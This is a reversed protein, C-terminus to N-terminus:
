QDLVNALYRETIKWKNYKSFMGTETPRNSLVSKGMNKIQGIMWEKFKKQKFISSSYSTPEGEFKYFADNFKELEQEGIILSGLPNEYEEDWVYYHLEVLREWADSVNFGSVFANVLFESTVPLYFQVESPPDGFIATNFKNGNTQILQNLFNRDSENQEFDSFCLLQDFDQGKEGYITGFGPLRMAWYSVANSGGPCSAEEWSLDLLSDLEFGWPFYDQWLEQDWQQSLELDEPWKLSSLPQKREPIRFGDM